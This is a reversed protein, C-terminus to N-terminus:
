THTCLYRYDFVNNSNNNQVFKDTFDILFLFFLSKGPPDTTFFRGALAPSGPKIGSGPLDWTSRLLQTQTGRLLQTQTGCSNRRHELAWSRCRHIGHVCSSFGMHGLAWARHCSFGGRHSAQAGCSLAAGM